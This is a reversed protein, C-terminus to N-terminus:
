QALVAEDSDTGLRNIPPWTPPWQGTYGVAEPDRHTSMDGVLSVLASKRRAKLTNRDSRAAYRVYGVVHAQAGFPDPWDARVEVVPIGLLLAAAAHRAEHGAVERSSPLTLPEPETAKAEPRCDQFAVPTGDAQHWRVIAGTM